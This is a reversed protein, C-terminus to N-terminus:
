LNRLVTNVLAFVLLGLCVVALVREWWTTIQAHRLYHSGTFPAFQTGGQGRELITATRTDEEARERM